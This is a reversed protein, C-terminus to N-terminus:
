RLNQNIVSLLDAGLASGAETENAAEIVVDIVEDQQILRVTFVNGETEEEDGGGFLRGIFGTENEDASGSFNVRYWAGDRDSELVEIGAGDLAQGVQAWARASGIRLELVNAGTEDERLQAKSEAVISGALLSVSSAQYIDNRDALYQSIDQLILLERADSDSEEPWTALGEDTGRPRTIQRVYVESTGPHLGPEILVRVKEQ